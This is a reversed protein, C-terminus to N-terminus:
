AAKDGASWICRGGDGQRGCPHHHYRTGRLLRAKAFLQLVAGWGSRSRHKPRRAIRAIVVWVSVVVRWYM